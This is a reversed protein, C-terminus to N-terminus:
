ERVREAQFEGWHGKKGLSINILKYGEKIREPPGTETCSARAFKRGVLV